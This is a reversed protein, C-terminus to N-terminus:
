LLLLLLCFSIGPLSSYFEFALPFDSALVTCQSGSWFRATHLKSAVTTRYLHLRVVFISELSCDSASVRAQLGVLKLTRCYRWRRNSDTSRCITLMQCSMFLLFLGPFARHGPSFIMRGAARGLATRTHDVRCALLVYSREWSGKGSGMSVKAVTSVIDKAVKARWRDAEGRSRHMMCSMMMLRVWRSRSREPIHFRLPRNQTARYSERIFTPPGTRRKRCTERVPWIQQVALMAAPTSAEAPTKPDGPSHMM